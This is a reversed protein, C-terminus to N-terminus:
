KFLYGLVAAAIHNSWGAQKRIAPISSKIKTDVKYRNILNFIIKRIVSMNEAADHIRCPDEKFTVDLVYHVSNEIAWHGRSHHLGTKATINKNSIYFRQEISRHGNKLHRESEILCISQLESWGNYAQKFWDPILTVWCKRWEIRGHGHNRESFYDFNERDREKEVFLYGAADYLLPQNGKLGIFYNAKKELIKAVVEKQCGLADITITAGEIKLDDILKPLEPIENTKEDVTRQGLIIRRHTAFVNLIHTAKVEKTRSGKLTKGDINILEGPILDVLSDAWKLFWAEFKAIDILGLVFCLTSKSPVGHTYPFYQRLFDLKAVGYDHIYEWTEACSLVGAFTLFLIENLPYLLKCDERPDIVEEEFEMFSKIFDAANRALMEM